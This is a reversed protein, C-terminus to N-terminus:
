KANAPTSRPNEFKELRDDLRRSVTYQTAREGNMTRAHGWEDYLVTLTEDGRTYVSVRGQHQALWGAELAITDLTTRDSQM